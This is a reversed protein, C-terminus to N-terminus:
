GNATPLHEGVHGVVYEKEKEFWAFHIRIYFNKNATGSGIKIHEQMEIGHFIFKDGYKNMATKGQHPAYDCGREQMWSEVSMGLPGPNRALALQQLLEFAEYVEHPHQFPYGDASDFASDLFRLKDFYQDAAVVADGVNNIPPSEEYEQGDPEQPHMNRLWYGLSRIEYDKERISNGLEENIIEQRLTEEEADKLAQKLSSITNNLSEIEKRLGDALGDANTLNELERLESTRLELERRLEETTNEAVSARNRTKELLIGTARSDDEREQLERRLETIVEELNTTGTQIGDLLQSLNAVDNDRTKLSERLESVLRESEKRQGSVEELRGRLIVLEDDRERLIVNLQEITQRSAGAEGSAGELQQNLLEIKTDSERIRAQLLILERDLESEKHVSNDLEQRFSEIQRDRELLLSHLQAVEPQGSDAQNITAEIQKRLGEIREDRQAQQLHLRAIEPEYAAERSIAQELKGRLSDLESNQDALQRNLNHLEAAGTAADREREGLNRRLSEMESELEIIRQRLPRALREAALEAMRRRQAQSRINEFERLDAFEPLFNALDRVVRGAPRRLLASADAPMWFKHQGRRDDRSCGPQYLRMAGNFCALQFGVLRRLEDATEGNYTVVEALGTLLQQLWNPNVPTQGRWNESIALIPLRRGPAFIRNVFEAVNERILRVPQSSLRDPGNYCEFERFLELALRPPGAILEPPPVPGEADIFASQVSVAVPGGATSLKVELSLRFDPNRGHPLEIRFRRYALEEIEGSEDLLEEDNRLDEVREQVLACVREFLPVENSEPGTISFETKYEGTFAAPNIATVM